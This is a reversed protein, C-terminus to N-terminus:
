RPWHRRHVLARFAAAALSGGAPWALEPGKGLLARLILALRIRVAEPRGGDAGGPGAIATSAHWGRGAAAPAGPKRAGAGALPLAMEM